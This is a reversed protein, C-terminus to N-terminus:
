ALDFMAYDQAYMSAIFSFSAIRRSKREHSVPFFRRNSVSRRFCIFSVFFMGADRFFLFIFSLLNVEDQSLKTCSFFIHM